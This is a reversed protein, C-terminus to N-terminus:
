LRVMKAMYFGDFGQEAVFFSKEDELKFDSHKQLFAEVQKQNESPLVSCTAYTLKGGKKLLRAHSELIEAQIAHLRKLEEKEFFIKAEPKRRYTGTGSCPADILVRDFSDKMRKFTKSGQIEKIEINHAGARRSRKKLEELRRLHIDMAVIKGKNEMLAALHLTKGGAGACTDAVRMAPELDMFPAVSQSAGDQMEFYGQKFAKSQFVNKRELLQYCFDFVHKHEIGEEALASEFKKQNVKLPNRRIFVEAEHSSEALFNEVGSPELEEELVSLLDQSLSWKLHRKSPVPWAGKLYSEVLLAVEEESLTQFNEKQLYDFGEGARRVIEYFSQAFAKRDRSGWKKNTKFSYNIVKSAAAKKEFLFHLSKELQRQLPPFLKPPLAKKM